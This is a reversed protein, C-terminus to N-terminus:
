ICKCFQIQMHVLITHILGRGILLMEQHCHFDAKEKCIMHGMFLM